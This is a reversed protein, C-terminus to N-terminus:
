KTKKSKYTLVIYILIGIILLILLIKKTLKKIKKKHKQYFSPKPYKKTILDYYDTKRAYYWWGSEYTNMWFVTDNYGTNFKWPKRVLHLIIPNNYADELEKDTYRYKYRYRLALEKFFSISIMNLLGFKAPLIDMKSYCLANIVSQDHNYLKDNYEEIFKNFKNVMNNKRLEKLNILMVGACIYHDNEMTIHNIANPIVDLFGKFYFNNMDLDYMEKIDSYALIDGDVWIIKDLNPLLNPLYLRYYSPTSIRSDKKANKYQEKMDILEIIIRDYKKKLDKLCNKNEISFDSPHMIYYNYKTRPNSNLMMSTIAVITPYIYNNDLAMSIPIINYDLNKYIINLESNEKYLNSENLDGKIIGLYFDEMIELTYFLSKGKSKVEFSKQLHRKSIYYQRKLKSLINEKNVCQIYSSNMSDLAYFNCTLSLNEKQEEQIEEYQLEIDFINYFISKEIINKECVDLNLYLHENFRSTFIHQVYLILQSTSLQILLILILLIMGKTKNRIFSIM